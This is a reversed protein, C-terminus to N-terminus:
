VLQQLSVLKCYEGQNAILETHTGREIISGNKLVIIRDANQITSLRHAIIISTRNKMLYDLAQQVLQESQSDLSSTAEDLLLIPPNQLLARAISLRQRQGGSLKIGRDGILTDYGQPMEMIFDHAGANKAAQIVKEVEVEANVKGFSINNFVTDNFLMVDQSVVGFLMRVDSIVYDQINVDDFLIKGNQVDYFRLLLNVITSKGGGSNGVLAIKEGKKIELNINRLVLDSDYAFNLDKLLISNELTKIPMADPKEIIKEDSDLIEFIRKASIFGKQIYGYGKIFSQIPPILRAFVLVFLILSNAGISGNNILVISGILIVCLMSAIALIESTPASLELYRFIKKTYKAFRENTNKFNTFFHNQASFGKIVRLGSITEEYMSSIKDLEAQGQSAKRRIAKSIKKTIYVVLPFILLSLITLIPSIILLTVVFVLILLPLLLLIDITCRILATDVEHLDSNFRTIIEGSKHSIYFSLPLILVKNFLDNRLDKTANANVPTIFYLGLFRFLNSLLSCVIFILSVFMLAEFMGYHLQFYTICYFLTDVIADKSLSFAPMVTVPEIQGFLISIFPVIM